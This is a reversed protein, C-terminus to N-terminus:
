VRSFEAKGTAWDASILRLSVEAGLPLDPGSVRAQVAPDAVLV